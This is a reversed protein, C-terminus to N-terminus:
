IRGDDLAALCSVYGTHGKLVLTRSENANTEVESQAKTAGKAVNFSDLVIKSAAKVDDTEHSVNNVFEHFNEMQADTMVIAAARQVISVDDRPSPSQSSDSLLLADNVRLRGKQGGWGQDKWTVTLTFEGAALGKVGLIRKLKLPEGWKMWTDVSNADALPELNHPRGSGNVPKSTITADKVYLEHGGGGGVIYEIQITSINKDFKFTFTQTTWGHEAVGTERLLLQSALDARAVSESKRPFKVSSVNETYLKEVFELVKKAAESIESEDIALKSSEDIVEEAVPQLLSAKSVDAANGPEKSPPPQLLKPPASQRARLADDDVPKSLERRAYEAPTEETSQRLGM